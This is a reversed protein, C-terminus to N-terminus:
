GSTSYSRFIILNAHFLRELASHTPVGRVAVDHVYLASVRLASGDARHGQHLFYFANGPRRLELSVLRPLPSGVPAGIAACIEDPLCFSRGGAPLVHVM